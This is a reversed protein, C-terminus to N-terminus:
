ISFEADDDCDEKNGAISNEPEAEVIGSDFSVRSMIIADEDSSAVSSTYYETNRPTEEETTDLTEETGTPALPDESPWQAMAASVYPQIDSDEVAPPPAEPPAEPENDIRDEQEALEPLYYDGRGLKICVTPGVYSLIVPLLLLGHSVGLAVMAMFMVFVTKIIGSSSFALPFVGLCTSLGGVLISSGMTRLTDKVKEERTPMTSEYYRLLIHMIFDVLLGVSIVLCIYTLPNISLGAFQLTGLLDMYLICMFPLVFLAATWHPILIFALVTVAVVGSVTTFTLESPVDTYFEWIFYIPDFAFFKFRGGGQNAPQAEAVRRQDALFDSIDKGYLDNIEPVNLLIDLKEMFTLTSNNGFLSSYAQFAPDDGNLLKQFDTVWCIEPTSNVQPLDGLDNLYDIMQQQVQPDSQNVDRFHVLIPLKRNSYLDMVDLYEGAYSVEPLFDTPKFDQRLLTTSYICVGFLMLFAIMVIKKVVPHLLHECYWNMFRDVMPAEVHNAVPSVDKDMEDTDVDEKDHNKVRFCVCCGRRNAAIRREDLVLIAVFFTIQYLFDICITPFAYLCLWQIIPISSTLAGMVFAVTTTITTMSISMGAEEMTDRIREVPDKTPDTRLFAGVIIFTDDLGIGFIAFPLISTMSTFPLGIIFVLGFGSMISLLITVVSGIGLLARSQIIDRRCFVMCTFAAMIAFVCPILPVDNAIARTVEDSISRFAYLELRYPQDEGQAAWEDKIPQLLNIMKLEFAETEGNSWEPIEILSTIAQAFTILSNNTQNHGDVVEWQLKGIFLDHPFPAGDLSEQSLTQIVAEDSGQTQEEFLTVNHNWFRTPGPIRCGENDGNEGACITEYGDINRVMDTVQFVRRMAEYTMINGGDAHVTLVTPRRVDPYTEGVWRGHEQPLCDTPAFIKEDGPDLYFNTFLGTTILTISMLCVLGICRKPNRAALLSVSLVSNIIAKRLYGTARKWIIVCRSICDAAEEHNSIETVSSTPDAAQM